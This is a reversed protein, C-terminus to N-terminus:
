WIDKMLQLPLLFKKLLVWIPLVRIVISVVFNNWYFTTNKRIHANPTYSSVTYIISLLNWLCRRQFPTKNNKLWYRSEFSYCIKTPGFACTQVGFSTSGNTYKFGKTHFVRAVGGFDPRFYQPPMIKILFIEVVWLHPRMFIILCMINSLINWYM